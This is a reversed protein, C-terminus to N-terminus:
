YKMMKGRAVAGSNGLEYYYMGPQLGSVPVAIMAPCDSYDRHYVERGAVDHLTITVAGKIAGTNLHLEDHAPNPYAAVGAATVPSVGTTASPKIHLSDVRLVSGPVTVQDDGSAITLSLSGLNYGGHMPLEFYTWETASKFYYERHGMWGGGVTWMDARLMGSDTGAPMYMYYGAVVVHSTDTYPLGAGGPQTTTMIGPLIAAHINDPDTPQTKLEVAYSGSRHVTSKAVGRMDYVQTNWGAPREYTRATWSDFSGGPIAQTIGTGTFALEDLELWSGGTTGAGMLNSCSAKIIVTDPVVGVTLPMSFATFAPMSGTGRFKYVDDSVVAGARKFIVEIYASDNGPLSYRYYGGLAAPQQGYPVGGTSHSDYAFNIPVAGLALQARLTDTGVIATQLHAAHGSMGAVEWVTLTDIFSLSRKNATIWGMNPEGYSHSTWDEMDGNPCAVQAAAPRAAMLLCLVLM